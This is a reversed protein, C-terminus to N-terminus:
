MDIINIINYLIDILFMADSSNTDISNKIKETLQTLLNTLQSKFSGKIVNCNNKESDGFHTIYDNYTSQLIQKVKKRATRNILKQLYCPITDDNASGTQISSCKKVRDNKNYEYSLKSIQEDNPLANDDYM